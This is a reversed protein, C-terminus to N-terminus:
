LAVINLTLFSGNPKMILNQLVNSLLNFSTELPEGITTCIKKEGELLSHNLLSIM